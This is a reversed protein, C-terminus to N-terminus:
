GYWPAPAEKCEEGREESDEQEEEAEEDSDEQVKGDDQDSVNLQEATTKRKKEDPEKVLEAIVQAWRRKLSSRRKMLQQQLEEKERELQRLKNQM